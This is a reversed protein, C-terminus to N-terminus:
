KLNIGRTISSSAILLKRSTNVQPTVNSSSTSCRWPQTSADTNGASMNNSQVENISRKKSISSPPRLWKSIGDSKTKHAQNYPRNGQVSKRIQILISPSIACALFSHSTQLQKPIQIPALRTLCYSIRLYIM